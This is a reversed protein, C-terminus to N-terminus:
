LCIMLKVLLTCYGSNVVHIFALVTSWFKRTWRSQSDSCLGAGYVVSEHNVQDKELRKDEFESQAKQGSGGIPGICVLRTELFASALM